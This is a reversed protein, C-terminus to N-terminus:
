HSMHGWNIKNNQQQEARPANFRDQWNRHIIKKLKTPLSTKIQAAKAQDLKGEAVAKDINRHASETLRKLYEEESWGKKDKVIQMLTKGQKLPEILAKPELGLWQATDIFIHGGHIHTPRSPKHNEQPASEAPERLTTEAQAAGAALALSATLLLSLALKGHLSATERKFM